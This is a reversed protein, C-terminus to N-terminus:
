ALNSIQAPLSCEYIAASLLLYRGSLNILVCLFLFVVCGVGVGVVVCWWWVWCVVVCGVCVVEFCVCGKTVTSQITRPCKGVPPGRLVALWLLPHYYVSGGYWPPTYLRM